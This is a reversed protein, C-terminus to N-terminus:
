IYLNDFDITLQAYQEMTIDVNGRHFTLDPKNIHADIIPKNEKVDIEVDGKEYHLKVAFPSPVYKISLTKMPPNGIQYAQEAFVDMGNHIDLLAAGQEARKATGEYAAQIGESAFKENLRKTSELNMEEWAQSQDITLKGKPQRISLDAKPQEITLQAKGQQLEIQAPTQKIGIKAMQSEMRIQPFQM